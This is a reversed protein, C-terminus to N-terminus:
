NSAASVPVPAFTHLRTFFGNKMPEMGESWREEDEGWDQLDQGDLRVNQVNEPQIRPVRDAVSGHSGHDIVNKRMNTSLVRGSGLGRFRIRIQAVLTSYRPEVNRAFARRM